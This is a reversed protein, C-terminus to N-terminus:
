KKRVVGNRNPKQRQSMIPKIGTPNGFNLLKWGYKEIDSVMRQSGMFFVEVLNRKAHYFLAESAKLGGALEDARKRLEDNM